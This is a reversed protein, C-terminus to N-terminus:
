PLYQNYEELEKQSAYEDPRLHRLVIAAQQPDEEILKKATMPDALLEVTMSVVETGPAGESKM